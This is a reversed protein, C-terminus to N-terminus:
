LNTFFGTRRTISTPRTVLIKPIAAGLDIKTAKLNAPAPAAGRVSKARPIIKDPWCIHGVNLIAANEIILITANGMITKKNKSIPSRGMIQFSISKSFEAPGDPAIAKAKARKYLTLVSVMAGTIIQVESRVKSEKAQSAYILNGSELFFSMIFIAQVLILVVNEIESFPAKITM